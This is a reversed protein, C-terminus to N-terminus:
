AGSNLSNQWTAIRFLSQRTILSLMCNKTCLFEVDQHKLVNTLGNSFFLTYLVFALGLHAALRYQSVRPVDVNSNKSPDLGSKVMYWGLLGQSLLLSGAAVMRVKMGRNFRGKYWFYACPVFFVVGIARGWMRHVYEMTWIFKFQPLSM